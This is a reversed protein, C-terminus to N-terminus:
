LLTLDLDLLTVSHDHGVNNWKVDNDNGDRVLAFMYRIDADSTYDLAAFTLTLSREDKSLVLTDLANIANVKRMGQICVDTLAINPVFTSKRLGRMNIDLMGDQLGFLWNGDPRRMPVADSFRSDTLFYNKGFSTSSGNDPDLMMISNNGALLLKGGCSTVSLLVDTPLGEEKGFHRFSLREGTIDKSAIMNIGGSETSIFLRGKRDEAINMTASCSVCRETGGRKYPM